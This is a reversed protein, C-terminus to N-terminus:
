LYDHRKSFYKNLEGRLVFQPKTYSQVPLEPDNFIKYVTQEGIQYERVIDAVTLKDNSHSLRDAIEIFKSAIIVNLEEDSISSETATELMTQIADLIKENRM